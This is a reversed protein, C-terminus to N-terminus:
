RYNELDQMTITSGLISLERVVEKGLDGGYFARDGDRALTELTSALGPRRHLSGAEVLEGNM